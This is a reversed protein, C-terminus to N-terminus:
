KRDVALTILHDLFDPFKFGVADLSKPFLSEETLGPLTNVELFYIGRPSVIFDSRSYHNLGLAKHVKGATSQIDEKIDIPFNGPCIEQSKGGYKAEYDFFSNEKPPVIEIPPM